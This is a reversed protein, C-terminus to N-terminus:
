LFLYFGRERVNSNYCGLITSEDYFYIIAYFRSSGSSQIPEIHIIQGLKNAENEILDFPYVTNNQISNIM